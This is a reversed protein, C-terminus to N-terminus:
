QLFSRIDPRDSVLDTLAKMAGTVQPFSSLIMEGQDTKLLVEVENVRSGISDLDTDLVQAVEEVLQGAVGEVMEVGAKLKDTEALREFAKLSTSATPEAQKEPWDFEVGRQRLVAAIHDFHVYFLEIGFSRMLARSPDGWRGALVAISKRLTPHTKRLNYHAVCLWSGKDRNHKTYRIYKPDIMIVPRENSDFVVADIQYQNKTGNRLKAPRITFGREEVIPRLVDRVANEFLKGVAEGLASASNTPM